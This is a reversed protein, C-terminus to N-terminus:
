GGAGACAVVQALETVVIDPEVSRLRPDDERWRLSRRDGAFLATKLGVKRAPWIDNRLDNGVYLTQAPAIGRSSLAEVLKEYLRVSPKAERERYSWVQCDPDFGLEDLGRESFAEFLLPTYFQANSVIGLLKGKERLQDLIRPFGPMPWVPNSECEFAVALRDVTEADIRGGIRDAGAHMLLFTDWVERIDVEPCAVGEARRVAHIAEIEGILADHFRADPDLVILGASEMARRIAQERNREDALSIDGSASMFLTGYIDFVVARIGTIARLRPDEHTAIPDVPRSRERIISLLSSVSSPFWCSGAM